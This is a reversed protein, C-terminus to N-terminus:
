PFRDTLHIGEVTWSDGSRRLALVFTATATRTVGFDGRWTMAITGRSQAVDGLIAPSEIQGPVAEPRFDDVFDLFRDRFSRSGLDPPWLLALEARDGRTIAGHLRTFLARAATEASLKRQEERLARAGASDVVSPPPPPPPLPLVRAPPLVPIPVVRPTDISVPPPVPTSAGPPGGPRERPISGTPSPQRRGPPPLPAPPPTVVLVTPASDSPSPSPSVPLPSPDAMGQDAASFGSPQWFVTRSSASMEAWAVWGASSSTAIAMAGAAVLLQRKRRGLRSAIALDARDRAPDMRMASGGAPSPTATPLLWLPSGLLHQREARRTRFFLFLLLLTLLASGGAVTVLLPSSGIRTRDTEVLVLAGEGREGRRLLGRVEFRAGESPIAGTQVRIGAADSADVLFYSGGKGDVGARGGAVFGEVTVEQGLYTDPSSKLDHIWGQAALPLTGPVPLLVCALLFSRM